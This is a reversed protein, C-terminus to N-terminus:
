ITPFKAINFQNRVTQSVVKWMHLTKLEQRMTLMTEEESERDKQNQCVLLLFWMLYQQYYGSLGLVFFSLHLNKAEKWLKLYGSTYWQYTHTLIFLVQKGNELNSANKTLFVPKQEGTHKLDPHSTYGWLRHRHRSRQLVAEPIVNGGFLGWRGNQQSSGMHVITCLCVSLM